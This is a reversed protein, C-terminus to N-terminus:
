VSIQLAAAPVFRYLMATIPQFDDSSVPHSFNPHLESIAIFTQAAM